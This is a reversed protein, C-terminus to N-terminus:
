WICSYSYLKSRNDSVILLNGKSDFTLGEPNIVPVMVMSIEEFDQSMKVICRDEDSLIYLYDKYYTASSIDALKTYKFENKLIFNHDYERFLIPDSETILLFSKRKPLYTISEFAKNRAGQYNLNISKILELNIDFQHIIRFMEDVVYIISDKSFVAEFDSGRFKSTKLIEGNSSTQHLYGNDSVIYFTQNELSHFIDSPESITLEFSNNLTLSQCIYFNYIPINLIILILYKM